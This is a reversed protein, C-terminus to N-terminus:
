AINDDRQIIKSNILWNGARLRKLHALANNIYLRSLCSMLAARPYATLIETKLKFM